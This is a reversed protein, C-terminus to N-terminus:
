KTAGGTPAANSPASVKASTVPTVVVGTVDGHIALKKRKGMTGRAERTSTRKAVAAATQDATLPRKAKKPLRNSPGKVVYAGGLAM